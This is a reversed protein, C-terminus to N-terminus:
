NDFAPGLDGLNIVTNTSHDVWATQSPYNIFTQDKPQGNADITWIQLRYQRNPACSLDLDCTLTVTGGLAIVPQNPTCMNEMKKWFGGKIRVQSQVLDLRVKSFSENTEPNKVQTTYKGKITIKCGAYADSAAALSLVSVLGIALASRTFM